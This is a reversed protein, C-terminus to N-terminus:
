FANIENFTSNYFIRTYTWANNIIDVNGTVLEAIRTSPEPISRFVLRDIEPEGRWHDPNKEMVIREDRDWKVFKFPGTGMPHSALYEESHKNMYHEALIQTMSLRALLLPHPEKTIFRVKYDDLVEVKEVMSHYPAFQSGVEPDLIRDITYKVDHATFKIHLLSKEMMGTFMM